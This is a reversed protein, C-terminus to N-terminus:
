QPEGPDSQFVQQTKDEPCFYFEKNDELKKCLAEWYPQVDKSIAIKPDKYARLQEYSVNEQKFLPEIKEMSINLPDVLKDIGYVFISERDERKEYAHIIELLEPFTHFEKEIRAVANAEREKKDTQGSDDHMPTDGAYAELLDHALAYRLVKSIDLKLNNASAVYWCLLVVEFTHEATSTMGAEDPRRSVRKVRQVQHLFALFSELNQLTLM